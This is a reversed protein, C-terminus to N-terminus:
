IDLDILNATKEEVTCLANSTSEGVSGYNKASIIGGSKNIKTLFNDYTAGANSKKTLTKDGFKLTNGSFYGDLRLCTDDVNIQYPFADQSEGESGFNKVWLVEPM